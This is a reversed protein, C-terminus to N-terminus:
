EKNSQPVSVDRPNRLFVSDLLALFTHWVGEEPTNTEDHSVLQKPAAEASKPTDHGFHTPEEADAEEALRLYSVIPEIVTSMAMITIFCIIVSMRYILYGIETDKM